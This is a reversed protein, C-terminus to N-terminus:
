YESWEDLDTQSNNGWFQEVRFYLSEVQAATMTKVKELLSPLDVDHRTATSEYEESDECHAVLAGVNCRFKGEVMSGNLSDAFFIWETKKFKGKLESLSYLRIAKLADIVAITGQNINKYNDTLYEALELPLRLQVTKTEM